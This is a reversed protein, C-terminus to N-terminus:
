RGRGPSRAQDVGAARSVAPKAADRVKVMEQMRLDEAIKSVQLALEDGLVDSKEVVVSVESVGHDRLYPIKCLANM